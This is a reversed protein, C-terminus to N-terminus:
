LLSKLISDGEVLICPGGYIVKDALGNEKIYSIVAEDEAGPQLWLAPVNLTKADSLLGLTIQPPFLRRVNATHVPRSASLHSEGGKPEHHYQYIDRLTFPARLHEQCGYHGRAREGESAGSHRAERPGPVMEAGTAFRPNASTPIYRTMARVKTGFKTQDKSAGVVAFRTSSLFLKKIEVSAM